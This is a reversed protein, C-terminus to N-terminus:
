VINNGGQETLTHTQTRGRLLVHTNYILKIRNTKRKNVNNLSLKRVIVNPITKKKKNLTIQQNRLRRLQNNSITKFSIFIFRVSCSPRGSSYLM